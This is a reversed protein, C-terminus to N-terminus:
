IAVPEECIGYVERLVDMQEGITAYAHACELHAPMMNQTRTAASSIPHQDFIRCRM